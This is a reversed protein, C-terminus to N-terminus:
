KMKADEQLIRVGHERQWIRWLDENWQKKIASKNYAEWWENAKPSNLHRHEVKWGWAKCDNFIAQADPPGSALAIYTATTTPFDSSTPFPYSSSQYFLPIRIIYAM